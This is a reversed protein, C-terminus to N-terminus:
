PIEIGCLRDDRYEVIGTVLFRFPFLLLLGALEVELVVELFLAKGGNVDAGERVGLARRASNKWAAIASSGLARGLLRRTRSALVWDFILVIRVRGELRVMSSAALIAM